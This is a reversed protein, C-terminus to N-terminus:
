SNEKSAGLSFLWTHFPFKYLRFPSFIRSSYFASYKELSSLPSSSSSSTISICGSGRVHSDGITWCNLFLSSKSFVGRALLCIFFLTVPFRGFGVLVVSIGSQTNIYCSCTTCIRSFGVSVLRPIYVVPAYKFFFNHSQNSFYTM